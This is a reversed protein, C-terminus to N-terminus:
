KGDVIHVIHVCTSLSAAMIIGFKFGNLIFVLNYTFTLLFSYPEFPYSSFLISYDLHIQAISRAALMQDDASHPKQFYGIPCMINLDYEFQDTLNIEMQLPSICIVHNEHELTQSCNDNHQRWGAFWNKMRISYIAENECFRGKDIERLM